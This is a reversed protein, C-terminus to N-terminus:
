YFHAGRKKAMDVLIQAPKFRQGHTQSLRNLTAAKKQALPTWIASPGGRFPSAQGFIAGIDGHLPESIIGEQLCYAAENIMLWACREVIEEEATHKVAPVKM